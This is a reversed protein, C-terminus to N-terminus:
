GRSEGFDRLIHRAVDGPDEAEMFARVMAVGAIGTASLSAVDTPQVDGIAVIPVPSLDLLDLYGEVGIPARGSDKTPTPRFPGAGIYDVVDAVHHVASVLAKTGTTLGIIADAGLMTRAARVPLDAQGLHVGHIPVGEARLTAAVDVRDNILVHTSPNVEAVAVAVQAALDLLDLAGIPKSRVQVVGAGGRASERAVHVIRDVPGSGTVVYCRLDLPNDCSSFESSIQHTPM